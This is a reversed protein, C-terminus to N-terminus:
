STQHPLLTSVFSWFNALKLGYKKAILKSALLKEQVLEGM